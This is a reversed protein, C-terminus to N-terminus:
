PKIEIPTGDKRRRVTEFPEVAMGARIRGLVRDEETRREDPIIMLISKGVAEAAAYGFMREAATNWSQIIGNLDKSIIADVSSDVIAALRFAQRELEKQMSLDRAIRSMGLIEGEPSLIPSVSLSIPVMGGAKTRATTEFHTVFEGRLVRAVVSDEDPRCDRPVILEIPQGIAEHSTYGFLREAARNWTEILGGLGQSIVADDSSKVVAALRLAAPDLTNM